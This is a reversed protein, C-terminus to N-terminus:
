YKAVRRLFQQLDKISALADDESASERSHISKNGKRKIERLLNLDYKKLIKSEECKYMLSRLTDDCEVKVSNEECIDKLFMEVIARCMVCCANYRADLFCLVAERYKTKIHTPVMGRAFLPKIQQARNCVFPLNNWKEGLYYAQVQDGPFREMKNLLSFTTSDLEDVITEKAGEIMDDLEDCSKKYDEFIGEISKKGEKRWRKIFSTTASKAASDEIISIDSMEWINVGARNAWEQLSEILYTIQVMQDIANKLSAKTVKM